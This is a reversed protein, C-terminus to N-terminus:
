FRPGGQRLDEIERELGRHRQLLELVQSRNETLAAIVKFNYDTLGAIKEFKSEWQRQQKELETLVEGIAPAFRDDSRWLVRCTCLLAIFSPASAIVEAALAKAFGAPNPSSSAPKADLMFIIWKSITNPDAKALAARLGELVPKVRADSVDIQALEALAQDLRSSANKCVLTPDPAWPCGREVLDRNEAWALHRIQDHLELLIGVEREFAELENLFAAIRTQTATDPVIASRNFPVLKTM